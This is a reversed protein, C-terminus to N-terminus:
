KGNVADRAAMHKRMAAASALLAQRRPLASLQEIM